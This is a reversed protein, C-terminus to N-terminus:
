ITSSVVIHPEPFSTSVAVLESLEIYPQGSELSLAALHVQRDLKLLVKGAVILTTGEICAGATVEGQANFRVCAVRGDMLGSEHFPVTGSVSSFLLLDRKGTGKILFAEVASPPASAGVAVPEIVIDPVYKEFPVLLTHLAIPLQAVMQYRVIPARVKQAYGPAIWGGDPTDSGALLQCTVGEKEVAMIVLDGKGLSHSRVSLTKTDCVVQMPAFHFYRDILHEGEGLLEDRVLWYDPKLFVVARRHVVPSPLRTYGSHTGEVYDIPKASMWSRLETRPAYSWKLRGAYQAQSQNDIVVTNHALSERFYRHWDLAGNYTYFGPDVLIPQGHAVLALSLADAHGHAASPTGDHFVGDALPGCDFCLYHSGPDWGTRMIYYGSGKLAVSTHSPAKAALQDFQKWGDEGLLWFAPESFQEAQQKFDPRGFLVAGITLFSRFNWPPEDSLLIAQADDNDGIMPVTGNPQTMYM